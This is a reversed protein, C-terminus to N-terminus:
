APRPRNKGFMADWTEQPTVPEPEPEINTNM